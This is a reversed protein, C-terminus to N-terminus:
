VHASGIEPRRRDIDRGPGSARHAPDGGSRDTRGARTQITASRYYFPGHSRVYSGEASLTFRDATYKGGFAVNITDYPNDAQGVTSKVVPNALSYTAPVRSGDKFVPADIGTTAGDTQVSLQQTYSHGGSHSYITDLHLELADSPRWQVAGYFGSRVRNGTEYRPRVQTPM